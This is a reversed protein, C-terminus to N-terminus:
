AAGGGTNMEAIFASISGDDRFWEGFTNLHSFKQHLKREINEEIVLLLVPKTGAGTQLGDMRSKPNISKGIKMLGSKTNLAIYTKARDERCKSHSIEIPSHGANTINLHGMSALTVAMRINQIVQHHFFSDERYSHACRMAVQDAEEMKEFCKQRTSDDADLLSRLAGTLFVSVALVVEDPSPQVDSGNGTLTTTLINSLM